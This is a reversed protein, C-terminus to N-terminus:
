ADARGKDFFLYAGYLAVLIAFAGAVFLLLRAQRSMAPPSPPAEEPGYTAEYFEKFEDETEFTRTPQNDAGWIHVRRPLPANPDEPATADPKLLDELVVVNEPFAFEDFGESPNNIAVSRITTKVLSNREAGSHVRVEVDTPLWFDGRIQKFNGVSYEQIVKMETSGDAAPKRREAVVTLQYGALACGKSTDLSVYLTWSKFNFGQSWQATSDKIELQVLSGNKKVFRSEYKEVLESLTMINPETPVSFYRPIPCLSWFRWHKNRHSIVCRVGKRRLAYYDELRVNELPYDDVPAAYEYTDKGDFYSESRVRAGVTRTRQQAANSAPSGAGTGSSPPPAIMARLEVIRACDGVMEWTCGDYNANLSQSRTLQSYELRMANVDKWQEEYLAAFQAVTPDVGLAPSSALSACFAAILLCPFAFRSISAFRTIM